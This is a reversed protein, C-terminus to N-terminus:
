CNFRRSSYYRHSLYTYHWVFDTPSGFQLNDLSLEIYRDIYVLPYDKKLIDAYEEIDYYPNSDNDKTSTPFRLAYNRIVEEYSTNASYPEAASHHEAEQETDSNYESSLSHSESSHEPTQYWIIKV